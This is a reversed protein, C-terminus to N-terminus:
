ELTLGNPISGHIISTHPYILMYSHQQFCTNNSEITLIPLFCTLRHKHKNPFYRHQRNEFESSKQIEINIVDIRWQIFFGDDYAIFLNGTNYFDEM